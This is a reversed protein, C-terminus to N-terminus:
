NNQSKGHIIWKLQKLWEILYCSGTRQHLIIVATELVYLPKVRFVGYEQRFERFRPAGNDRFVRIFFIGAIKTMIFNLCFFLSTTPSISSNKKKTKTSQWKLGSEVTEGSFGSVLFSSLTPLKPDHTKDVFSVSRPLM